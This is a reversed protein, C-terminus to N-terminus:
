RLVKASHLHWVYLVIAINIGLAVMLSIIASTSGLIGTSMAALWNKCCIQYIYNLVNIAFVACFFYLAQRRLMFLLVAGSLNCILTLGAISHDIITLSDFYNRQTDNIPITGNMMLPILALSILAFPTCVFYFISIIWVGVPRGRRAPAPLLGIPPQFGPVTSIPVWDTIGEYWALDAPQIAGSSAQSNVQELTYPGFQRGNRTIYINVCPRELSEKM